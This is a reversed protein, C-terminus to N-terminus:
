KSRLSVYKKIMYEIEDTSKNFTEMEFDDVKVRIPKPWIESNRLQKM